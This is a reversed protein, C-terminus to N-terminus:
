PYFAYIRYGMAPIGAASFGLTAELEGAARFGTEPELAKLWEAPAFVRRALPRDRADTLTLELHPYELPYRARNRIQVQLEFQDAVNPDPHLQSSQIVIAHADKPLPLDCYLTQCMQLLWPRLPPWSKALNQRFVVVLQVLLLFCLTAVGFRWGWSPPSPPRRDPKAFRSREPSLDIKPNLAVAEGGVSGSALVPESLLASAAPAQRAAGSATRPPPGSEAMQPERASAPPPPPAPEDASPNEPVWFGMPDTSSTESTSAPQKKESKESSEKIRSEWRSPSFPDEELPPLGSTSEFRPAPPPSAGLPATGAPPVPSPKGAAEALHEYANFPTQCHGCRVLGQRAKLQEPGIKFLTHCSPCRARTM